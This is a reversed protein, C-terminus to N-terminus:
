TRMQEYLKDWLTVMPKVVNRMDTGRLILHMGIGDSLYLFLEGLEKDTMSSKIEGNERAREFAKIWYALEENIGGLLKKKFEPFIKVADFILSFYNMTISVENIQGEFKQLYNKTLRITENAYDNYFQQLSEKSYSEYNREITQFFYDLVELFLQEKSEFYHYFAGKSLGTEKVIEKMTVEKFNRQLFLSSAILLIHEKTENM